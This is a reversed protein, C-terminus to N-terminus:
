IYAAALLAGGSPGTWSSPSPNEFAVHARAPGLEFGLYRAHWAIRIGGWGLQADDLQRRLETLDTRWLPLLYTQPLNLRLGSISGFEGFIDQLLPAATDMDPTVTAVDDAFNRTTLMPLQRRIRRLLIDMQWQLNFQRYGAHRGSGPTPRSAM